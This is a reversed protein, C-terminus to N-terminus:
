DAIGECGQIKIHRLEQILDIFAIERAMNGDNHVAVSSPCLLLSLVAEKTMKM